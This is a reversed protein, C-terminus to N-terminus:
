PQQMREVMDEAWRRAEPLNKIDVVFEQGRAVSKLRDGPLWRAADGHYSLARNQWLWSPVQWLSLPGGAVTMRLSDGDHLATAGTGIYVANHRRQALAGWFHPHDPAFDPPTDGRGPWRVEEVRLWGFFRHHREATQAASFLGFFLFLDGVGVGQNALHSQAADAQGFACRGGAFFPDHHCHQGGDLRRRSAQAVADGLGLDAYRPARDHAIGPIPLSVPRGDIIPSPGGGSGSDFGKRSFILKLQGRGM